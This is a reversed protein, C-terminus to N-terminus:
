RHKCNNDRSENVAILVFYVGFVANLFRIVYIDISYLLVDLYPPLVSFIGNHNKNM